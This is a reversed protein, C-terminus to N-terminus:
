GLLLMVKGAPRPKESGRFLVVRRSKFRRILTFLSRGVPGILVVRRILILLFFRRCQRVRTIVLRNVVRFKFPDRPLLSLLWIFLRLLFLPKVRRVSRMLLVVRRVCLRVAFRRGFLLIHGRHTLLRKLRLRFRSLIRPFSRIFRGLAIQQRTPLVM